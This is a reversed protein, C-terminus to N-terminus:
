PVSANNQISLMWITELLDSLKFRLAMVSSQFNFLRFNAWWSKNSFKSSCCMNELTFCRVEFALNFRYLIWVQADLKVVVTFGQLRGCPEM